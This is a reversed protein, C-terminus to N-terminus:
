SRVGRWIVAAAGAGALALAATAAFGAGLGWADVSWGALPYGVLWCGHSLAYQAAFLPTRDAATGTRAVLRGAPSQSFGLAVGLGLWLVMLGALGLGTLGLALLPGIALGAVMMLRRDGYRDVLKPMLWAAAVSGLGAAALTYAVADEGLGLHSRVYVVTNVLVMASAAAIAFYLAFLGRLEPSAFYTRIGHGVRVRTPGDSTRAAPKLGSTVILLASLVLAGATLGFLGAYPLVLLALGAAVPALLMELEIAIRSLALAKTYTKEDSLVEPLAAQYVPMFVAEAAALVLILLYIQWVADVLPYLLVLGARVMDLGALLAKRPVRAAYAGALPAIPLKALMRIALATGLVGAAGSGALDYALLALGVSALGSGLLALVQGAFLHRFTSSSLPSM